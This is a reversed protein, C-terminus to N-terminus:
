RHPRSTRGRPRVAVPHRMWCAIDVEVDVGEDEAVALGRPLHLDLPKGKLHTVAWEVQGLNRRVDALTAMFSHGCVRGISELAALKHLETLSLSELRQRLAREAQLDPPLTPKEPSPEIVPSTGANAEAATTREQHTRQQDLRIVEEVITRFPRHDTM